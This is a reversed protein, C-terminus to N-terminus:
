VNFLGHSKESYIPQTSYGTADTPCKVLGRYHIPYSKQPHIFERELFVHQKEVTSFIRSFGSVYIELLYSIKSTCM